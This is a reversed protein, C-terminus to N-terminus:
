VLPRCRVWEPQLSFRRRGIQRDRRSRRDSFCVVSHWAYLLERFETRHTNDLKTTCRLVAACAIPWIGGILVEAPTEKLQRAEAKLGKVEDSTEGAGHRIVRRVVPDSVEDMFRGYMAANDIEAQLAASRYRDM